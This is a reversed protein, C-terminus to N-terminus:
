STNFESFHITLHVGFNALCRNVAYALADGDLYDEPRLWQGKLRRWVIEAINLEPSCVPLYFVFLGRQRWVPLRSKVLGATHIRARDLVVVTPKGILLSLEELRQCVFGATVNAGSTQCHCRNDRSFLGWVNVRYGKASLICVQEGPFQWGYPVYGESSVCTEDGYFLDIHGQRCLKELEAM